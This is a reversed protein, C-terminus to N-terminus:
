VTPEYATTKQIKPMIMIFSAGKGPVNEAYIIGNHHELIKKCIALGIGSGPYESKGHLRQFVKFITEAYEDDFGIGNDTFSIKCYHSKGPLLLDIKEQQSLPESFITIEPPTGSKRFKIANSIINSFLQKMQSPIADLEPLQNSVIVTGTEEIRLELETKVQKLILNLDVKEFPQKTKSIRSFELLDNILNRMNEAAITMRSLYMTGDGTLAGKYKELLMSSFTIIKRLPEQMDHSAVFAFEELEKNSHYLEKVKNKLNEEISRSHTVDRISGSLKEPKGDNNVVIKAVCHILKINGKLTTIKFETNITGGSDIAARFVDWVRIKDEPHILNRVLKNTVDHIDKDIEYIKYVGASCYIKNFNIIWEFTGFDENNFQEMFMDKTDFTTFPMGWKSLDPHLMLCYSKGAVEDESVVPSAYLYFPRIDGDKGKIKYIVYNSRSDINNNVENLQYLLRNIQQNELLENFFLPQSELDDNNYSLYHSFLDNVFVIQLDQENIVAIMGPASSIAHQLFGVTQSLKKPKIQRNTFLLEDSGSEM